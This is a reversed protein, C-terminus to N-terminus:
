ERHRQSQYRFPTSPLPTSSDFCFRAFHEPVSTKVPGGAESEKEREKEIAM